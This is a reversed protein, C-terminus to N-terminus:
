TSVILKIVFNKIMAVEPMKFGDDTGKSIIRANLKGNMVTLMQSVTNVMHSYADESVTGSTLVIGCSKPKEITPKIKHFFHRNYYVQTRDFIAKLPAPFSNNYVPSAFIVCDAEEFAKFFDDLDTFVCGKNKKCYGCDFCPKAMISYANFETIMVDRPIENIIENVISKSNSKACPSANLILLKKNTEIVQLKM